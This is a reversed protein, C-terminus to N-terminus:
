AHHPDHGQPRLRSLRIGHQLSIETLGELMPGLQLDRLTGVRFRAVFRALDAELAAMDVDAPADDGALIVLLEGLFAADERWFALLVLLVLARVRPEVEGVMGFDLFWIRDQWWRLNGPHPDAHFFGEGLIQLYYADLLERAAALRAEGAPAERVPVGGIEVLVLLRSTSLREHVRPVGLRRYPTLIRTVKEINAAEQRFDLERELSASLHEVVLPLDLLDRFAPRDGAKEAFLRLLGLDRMIEDRASPRQVKVVVREGTELRAAHVQAITGAALPAPDIEAFVDEWPVRLEEEMVAVVEAEPLPQVRDQLSALEEVVEPPLLDPRTPPPKGLKAFPPGPEELAGGGRAPREHRRERGRARRGEGAGGRARDRGLSGRRDRRARPRRAVRRVARAGPARGGGARRRGPPRPARGRVARGHGGGLSRRPRREALPRDRRPDPARRRRRRPRPLPPTQDAGSSEAAQSATRAFFRSFPRTCSRASVVEQSAAFSPVCDPRMSVM